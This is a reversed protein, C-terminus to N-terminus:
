QLFWWDNLSNWSRNLGLAWHRWHTHLLFKVDILPFFKLLQFCEHSVRLESLRISLFYSLLVRFLVFHLFIFLHFHIQLTFILIESSCWINGNLPNAFRVLRTNLRLRERLIPKRLIAPKTFDFQLLLVIDWALYISFLKREPDRLHFETVFMYYVSLLGFVDHSQDSFERLLTGGTTIGIVRRMIIRHVVQLNCVVRGLFVVGITLETDLLGRKDRCLNPYVVLKIWMMEDIFANKFIWAHALLSLDIIWSYYPFNIYGVALVVLNFHMCFILVRQLTLWHLALSSLFESMFQHFKDLLYNSRRIMLIVAHIALNFLLNLFFYYFLFIFFILLSFLFLMFTLITWFIAFMFPLFLLLMFCFLLMFIMTTFGPMFFLRNAWFIWSWLTFPWTFPSRVQNLKRLVALYM